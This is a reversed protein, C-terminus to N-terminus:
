TYQCGFVMDSSEVYYAAGYGNKMKVDKAYINYIIGNDFRIELHFVQKGSFDISGLPYTRNGDANVPMVSMEAAHRMLAPKVTLDGKTPSHFVVEKIKGPTMWVLWQPYSDILSFSAAQVEKIMYAQLEQIKKLQNQPLIYTAGDVVAYGGASTGLVHRVGDKTWIVFENDTIKKQVNAPELGKFASIGDRLTQYSTGLPATLPADASTESFQDDLYRYGVYTYAASNLTYLSEFQEYAPIKSKQARLPKTSVTRVNEQTRMSFASVTEAYMQPQCVSLLMLLAIGTCKWSTKKM